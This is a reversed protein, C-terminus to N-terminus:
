NFLRDLFTKKTHKKGKKGKMSTKSSTKKMSKSKKGKMSSQSKSQSQSQSNSNTTMAAKRGDKEAYVKSSYFYKRDGIEVPEDLKVRKFTYLHNKNNSGQTTEQVCILYVCRGKVKHMRCLEHGAKQAAQAPTRNVFRMGNPFTTKKGNALRVDVITFSRMNTKGSASKVM